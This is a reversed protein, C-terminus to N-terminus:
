PQRWITESTSLDIWRDVGRWCDSRGYMGFDALGVQVGLQSARYIAYSVERSPCVLVALRQIGLSGQVDTSDVSVTSVGVKDGSDQARLSSTDDSQGQTKELENLSGITDTAYCLLDTAIHVDVSVLRNVNKPPLRKMCVEFGARDIAELYALQRADDEHPMLTYYRAVDANLGECIGAFLRSMDIKKQLRKTARDLGTGDVLVCLKRKVKRRFRGQGLKQVDARSM